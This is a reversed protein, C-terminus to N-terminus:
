EIEHSYIKLPSYVENNAAFKECATTVIEAAENQTEDSM